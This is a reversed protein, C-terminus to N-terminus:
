LLMNGEPEAIMFCYYCSLFHFLLAIHFIFYLLFFFKEKVTKSKLPIYVNELKNLCLIYIGCLCPYPEKM